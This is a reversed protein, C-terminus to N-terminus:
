VARGSWGTPPATVPRSRTLCANVRYRGGTNTISSVRESGAIGESRRWAREDLDSGPRAHGLRIVRRCGRWCRIWRRWLVVSGSQAGM